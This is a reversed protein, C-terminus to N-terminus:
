GVSPRSVRRRRNAEVARLISRIRRILVLSPGILALFADAGDLALRNLRGLAYPAHSAVRRHSRICAHNFIPVPSRRVVVVVVVLGPISARTHADKWM